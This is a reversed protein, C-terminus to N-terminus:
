LSAVVELLLSHTIGKIAVLKGVVEQAPCCFARVEPLLSHVIGKNLTGEIDSSSFSSVIGEPFMLHVIGKILVKGADAPSTRSSRMPSTLSSLPIGKILQEEAPFLSVMVSPFLAIGKITTEDDADLWSSIEVSLVPSSHSSSQSNNAGSSRILSAQCIARPM